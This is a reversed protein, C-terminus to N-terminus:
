LESIESFFYFVVVSNIAGKNKNNKETKLANIQKKILYNTNKCIIHTDM